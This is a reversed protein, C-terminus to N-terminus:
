RLSTAAFSLNGFYIKGKIYYFEFKDIGCLNKKRLIMKLDDDRGGGKKNIDVRYKEMLM